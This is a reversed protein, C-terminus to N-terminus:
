ADDPLPVPDEEPVIPRVFRGAQGKFFAQIYAVTLGYLEARHSSGGSIRFANKEDDVYKRLNIAAHDRPGGALQTDFVRMFEVLRERDLHYYARAVAARIAALLSRKATGHKQAFRLAEWHELLFHHVKATTGLYKPSENSSSQIAGTAMMRAIAVDLSSPNLDGDAIRIQDEPKRKAHLDTALIAKRPMGRTVLLWAGTGALAIATLRHQGDILCGEEDFAIGQHTPEFEGAKLAMSLGRVWVARITRQRDYNMKLYEAAIEPTIFEWAPTFGPRVPWRADDKMAAGM